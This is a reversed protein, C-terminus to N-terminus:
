FIRIARHLGHTIKVFVRCRLNDSRVKEAYGGTTEVTFSWVLKHLESYGNATASVDSIRGEM